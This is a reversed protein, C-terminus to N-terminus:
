MDREQREEERQKPARWVPQSSKPGGGRGPDVTGCQVSYGAQSVQAESMCKCESKKGKKLHWGGKVGKGEKEEVGTRARGQRGTLANVALRHRHDLQL